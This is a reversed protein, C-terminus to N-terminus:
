ARQECRSWHAAILRAAAALDAVRYQPRRLIGDQWVTENGNDILITRCGARRGAEVDDLIDGVMWCSRLALGHRIAARHLLGAAPKRCACHPVRDPAHPCYLMATLQAGCGAFLRQLRTQVARLASRSFRRQAIGPQNSIVILPCRLAGLIALGRAAGPALQMRSPDVNYALDQLVTGDKDLFVAAPPHSIM